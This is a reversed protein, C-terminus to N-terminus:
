KGDFSWSMEVNIIKEGTGGLTGSTPIKLTTRQKGSKAAGQLQKAVWDLADQNLRVGADANDFVTHSGETRATRGKVETTPLNIFITNTRTDVVLMGTCLPLSQLASAKFDASTKNTFPVLGQVDAFEGDANNRLRAQFEPRCVNESAAAYTLFRGANAGPTAPRVSWSSTQLTLAQAAKQMCAMDGKCAEMAAKAREMVAKQQERSPARANAENVQKQLIAANGAIDLQNSDEPVGSGVLTFAAHMSEETTFKSHERGKAQHGSGDIRVDLTFRGPVDAAFAPACLLSAALAAAIFRHNM